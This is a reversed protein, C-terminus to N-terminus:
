KLIHIKYLKDKWIIQNLVGMYFRKYLIQKVIISSKNCFKMTLTHIIYQLTRFKSQESIGQSLFNKNRNKDKM